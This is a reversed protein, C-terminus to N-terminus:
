QKERMGTGTVVSVIASGAALAGDGDPWFSCLSVSTDLWLARWSFLGLKDDCDEWSLPIEDQDLSESEVMLFEPGRELM